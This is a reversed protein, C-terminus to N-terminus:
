TFDVKAEKGLMYISYIMYFFAIFDKWLCKPPSGLVM